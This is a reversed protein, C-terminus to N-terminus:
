KHSILDQLEKQSLSASQQGDKETESDVAKFKAFSYDALLTLVRLRGGADLEHYVKLLEDLVNFGRKQLADRLAITSKNPVGKIRGGTKKLGKPRM